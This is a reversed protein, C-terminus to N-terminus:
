KSAKRKEEEIRQRYLSNLDSDRLEPILLNRLEPHRMFYYIAYSCIPEILLGQKRALDIAYEILRRAVGKGRHQSPTYTEILKMVGGEVKYGLFAKSGDPLKIYIVSSTHKIEFEESVKNGM